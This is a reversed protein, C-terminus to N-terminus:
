FTISNVFMMKNNQWWRNEFQHGYQDLCQQCRSAISDCVDRCLERPIQTCEHEIATRWETITAHRAAYSMRFLEMLKLSIELELSPLDRQHNKKFSGGLNDKCKLQTKM